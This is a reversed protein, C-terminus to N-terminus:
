RQKKPFREMAAEPYPSSPADLLTEERDNLNAQFFSLVYANIIEMAREPPIRGAHTLRRIPSYLPSDCFNM